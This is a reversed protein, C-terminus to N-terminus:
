KPTLNTSMIPKKNGRFPIERSWISFIFGAKSIRWLVVLLLVNLVGSMLGNNAAIDNTLPKPQSTVNYLANFDSLMNKFKENKIDPNLTPSSVNRKIGHYKKHFQILWFNRDLNEFM